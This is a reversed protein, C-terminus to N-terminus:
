GGDSLLDWRWLWEWGSRILRAIGFLAINRAGGGWYAINAIRVRGMRRSQHQLQESKGQRQPKEM